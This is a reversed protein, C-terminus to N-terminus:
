VHVLGIAGREDRARADGGRHRLARRGLRRHVVAGEVRRAVPFGPVAARRLPLLSAREALLAPLVARRPLEITARWRCLEASRGLVGQLVRRSLLLVYVPFAGPVASHDARALVAAAIAVLWAERRVM